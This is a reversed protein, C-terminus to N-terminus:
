TNIDLIPVAYQNKNKKTRAGNTPYKSVGLCGSVIEFKRLSLFDRM